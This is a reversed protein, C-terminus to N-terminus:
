EMVACVHGMVFAGPGLCFDFLGNMKKTLKVIGLVLRGRAPGDVACRRCHFMRRRLAYRGGLVLQVRRFFTQAFRLMEHLFHQRLQLWQFPLMMVNLLCGLKQVFRRVGDLGGNM